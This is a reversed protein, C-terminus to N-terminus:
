RRWFDLPDRGPRFGAAEVVDRALAFDDAVREPQHADSGFSVAGGGEAYWWRVLGASWLPSATNIELARGTGALARFVARYEEEFEEERFPGGRRPWYRRAFDCHALVAFVDSGSILDLVATLYRRMVEAPDLREFLRDAAVLRDGDVLSHLSGLVRDFRGGALVARVGGAFLHPEGAEIGTLIRLGPFRSRCQEICELYGDVDLPTVRPRPGIRAPPDPPTDDPGWRTFDLHETFAVSPLGLAVARECSGVMSAAAGTDWSWETHVHNDPPLGGATGDGATTERDTTM